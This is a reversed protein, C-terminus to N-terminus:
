ALKLVKPKIGVTIHFEHERRPLGYKKRIRDLEPAEVTIIYLSETEKWKPPHVVQCKKPTFVILQGCEEIEGLGLERAEDYYAVSIHAGVLGPKGFYPPEQFGEEELFTILKHIYADDIDVYLFGDESKLVGCHSLHHRVYHMVEPSRPAQAAICTSFICVLAVILYKLRLM